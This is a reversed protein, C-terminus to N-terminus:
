RPLTCFAPEEDVGGAGVGDGVTALWIFGAAGVAGLMPPAEAGLAPPADDAPEDEDEDEALLTPEELALGDDVDSNWGAFVSAASVLLACAFPAAALLPPSLAGVSCNALPRPEACVAAVWPGVSEGAAAVAGGTVGDTCGVSGVVAAGIWCVAPDVPPAPPPAPPPRGPPLPPPPPENPEGLEAAGAGGGMGSPGGAVGGGAPGG